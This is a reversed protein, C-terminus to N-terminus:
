EQTGKSRGRGLGNRERLLLARERQLEKLRKEIRAKEAIVAEGGAQLVGGYRMSEVGSVGGVGHFKGAKEKDVNRREKDRTAGAAASSGRRGQWNWAVTGSGAHQQRREGEGHIEQKTRAPLRPPCALDCSSVGNALATSKQAQLVHPKRPPPPLPQAHRNSKKGRTSAAAADVGFITDCLDSAHLKKTTSRDLWAVLAKTESTRLNIKLERWVQRLEEVGLVGRNHTTDFRLCTGELLDRPSITPFAVATTKGVGVLNRRPSSSCSKQLAAKVGARIAGLAKKVIPPERVTRDLGELVDVEEIYSLMPHSMAKIEECLLGYSMEGTGDLDYYCVAADAEEQTMQVGMRRLAGRLERPDLKGSADADWDLFAERIIAHSVGGKEKITQELADRLRMKFRDVLQRTDVGRRNSPKKRPRATFHLSIQSRESDEGSRTTASSSGGWEEEEESSQKKPSPHVFPGQDYGCVDDVLLVFECGGAANGNPAYFRSVEKAQTASLTMNLTRLAGRLQNTDLTGNRETDWNLFLSKLIRRPSGGSDRVRKDIMHTADSNHAQRNNRDWHLFTQRINSRAQGGIQKVRKDAMYRLRKLVAEVVPSPQTEKAPKAKAKNELFALGRQEKRCQEQFM